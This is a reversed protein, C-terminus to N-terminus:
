MGLFVYRIVGNRFHGGVSGTRPSFDFIDCGARRSVFGPNPIQAGLARSILGRNEKQDV